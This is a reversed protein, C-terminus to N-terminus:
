NSNQIHQRQWRINIFGLTYSSYNYIDGKNLELM